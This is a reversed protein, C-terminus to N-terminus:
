MNSQKNSRFGAKGISESKIDYNKRAVWESKWTPGKRFNQHSSILYLDCCPMWAQVIYLGFCPLSGTPSSDVTIVLLVDDDDDDDDMWEQWMM